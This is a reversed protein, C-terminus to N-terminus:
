WILGSVLRRTRTDSVASNEEGQSDGSYDVPRFCAPRTIQHATPSAHNAFKDSARGARLRAFSPGPPVRLKQVLIM